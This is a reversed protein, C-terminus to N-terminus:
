RLRRRLTILNRLSILLVAVITLLMGIFDMPYFVDHMLIVTFVVSSIPEVAAMLSGKVSGIIATGM